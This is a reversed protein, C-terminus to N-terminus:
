QSDLKELLKKSKQISQRMRELAIALEGFEDESDLSIPNDINGKRIDIATKYLYALDKSVSSIVKIAVVVFILFTLINIILIFSYKGKTLAEVQETQNKVINYFTGISKELDNKDTNYAMKYLKLATQYDADRVAAIIKNQMKNIQTIKKYLELYADGFIKKDAGDLHSIKMEVYKMLNELAQQRRKFSNYSSKIRKSNGFSMFIDKLYYQKAQLTEGIEYVKLALKMKGSKLTTLQSIIGALLAISVAVSIIVILITIILNKYLKKELTTKM